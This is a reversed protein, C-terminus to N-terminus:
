RIASYWEREEAEDATMEWRIWADTALDYRAWYWSGNQDRYSTRKHQLTLRIVLRYFFRRLQRPNM